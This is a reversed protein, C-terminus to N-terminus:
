LKSKPIVNLERGIEIFAAAAQRIQEETHAASLQVRIRAEGKPVVPYSFGVVYIGRQLMKDAFQSALRADGLMVPSIPHNDGKVTFGAERLLTRFLTTNGWLRDFLGNTKAAEILDLAASASGVVAPPLSNSFLYPRSRNRLLDILEKSGTTYGGAAGGLAKGLTSNVIHVRDQVGFHEATGRGNPGLFGTAHCDDVFILAGYKEALDCIKDLPAIKGDMSFVGDTAILKLRAGAKDAEQLKTELDNMDCNGYRFRKAKCLRIGDIISAHNLSDSIVADNDTLITEFIGANADFCSAYLITDESGYFKTIQSELDKHINQTGCIFRVSSLGSGHTDLFKKSRAIVEPHDALGLYNNACFNIQPSTKGDKGAVTIASNQPSVIVRESKYTGAAKIANLEDNLIATFRTQAQQKTSSMARQPITNALPRLNSLNLRNGRLNLSALSRLM